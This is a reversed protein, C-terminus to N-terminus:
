SKLIHRDAYLIICEGGTTEECTQYGSRRTTHRRRYTRLNM